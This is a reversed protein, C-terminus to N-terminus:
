NEDFQETKRLDHCQGACRRDDRKTGAGLNGYVPSDSCSATPHQQDSGLCGAGLLVMFIITGLLIVGSKQTIM